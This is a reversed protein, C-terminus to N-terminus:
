FVHKFFSFLHCVLVRARAREMRDRSQLAARVMSRGHARIWLLAGVRGVALQVSTAPDCSAFYHLNHLLRTHTHKHLALVARFPHCSRLFCLLHWEISILRNGDRKNPQRYWFRVGSNSTAARSSIPTLNSMSSKLKHSIFVNKHTRNVRDNIVKASIWM